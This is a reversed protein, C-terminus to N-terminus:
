LVKSNSEEVNKIGPSGILTSDPLLYGGESVADFTEHYDAHNTKMLRDWLNYYLGFNCHLKAHHMNHHTSTNHWFTLRSQTFGKPLFEFGLHGLVNLYIMYGLFVAIALYNSPMVLTILPVIAAQIVAEIPHFSYAAWPTPNTTQHHVKHVIEFVPKWHMFRHTWYFYADHLWIMLFVSVLLYGWGFDSIRYYIQGFGAKNLYHTAVGSFGFIFITSISWLRERRTDSKGPRNAQIRNKKLREYKWVWFILYALGAVFFYRYALLGAASFYVGAFETWFGTKLSLSDLGM